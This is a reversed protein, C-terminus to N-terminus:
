RGDPSSCGFHCLYGVGGNVTLLNKRLAFRYNKTVLPCKHDRMRIASVSLCDECYFGPKPEFLVQQCQYLSRNDKQTVHPSKKDSMICFLALNPNDKLCLKKLQSPMKEYHTQCFKDYM